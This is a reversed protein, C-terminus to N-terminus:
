DGSPPRPAEGLPWNAHAGRGPGIAVVQRTSLDVFVLLRTVNDITYNTKVVAYASDNANSALRVEPLGTPLVIPTPLTLEAVGGFNSTNNGWPVVREVGPVGAGVLARVTLDQLAISTTQAVQDASLTAPQAAPSNSPATVPTPSYTLQGVGASTGSVSVIAIAIASVVASLGGAFLLVATRRGQAAREKM